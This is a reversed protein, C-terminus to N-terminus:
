KDLLEQRHWLGCVAQPQLGAGDAFPNKLTPECMHADPSSGDPYALCVKLLKDEFVVCRGKLACLLPCSTMRNYFISSPQEFLNLNPNKVKSGLLEKVMRQRDMRTFVPFGCLPALYLFAIVLAVLTWSSRSFVVNDSRPNIRM